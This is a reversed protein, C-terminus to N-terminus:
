LNLSRSRHQRTCGQTLQQKNECTGRDGFLPEYVTTRLDVQRLTWKDSIYYHLNLFKISFRFRVRVRIRVRVSVRLRVRARARVRHRYSLQVRPCTSGRVLSGESLQASVTVLLALPCHHWTDSM